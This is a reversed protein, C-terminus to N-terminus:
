DTREAPEDPANPVAYVGLATLVALAVTIGETASITDDGMAVTLATVAAGLAAVVAKAVKSVKM